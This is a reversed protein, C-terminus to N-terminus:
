GIEHNSEVGSFTPITSDRDALVATVSPWPLVPTWQILPYPSGTIDIGLGQSSFYVDVNRGRPRCGIEVNDIVRVSVMSGLPGFPADPDLPRSAHYPHNIWVVPIEATVALNVFQRLARYGPHQICLIVNEYHLLETDLDPFRDVLEGAGIVADPFEFIGDSVVVVTEGGAKLLAALARALAPPTSLDGPEPLFIM